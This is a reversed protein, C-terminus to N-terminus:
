RQAFFYIVGAATAAIVSYSFVTAEIKRASSRGFIPRPKPGDDFQPAEGFVADAPVAQRLASPARDPDAPAPAKPMPPPVVTGGEMAVPRQVTPAAGVSGLRWITNGFQVKDGESLVTIGSIQQGNVQVGNTAGMDEVAPSSDVERIRAHVRSVEPDALVVDCGERGITNGPSLVREVGAMPAEEVFVIESM